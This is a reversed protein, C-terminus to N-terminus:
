IKASNKPPLGLLKVCAPFQQHWNIGGKLIMDTVIEEQEAPAMYSTTAIRYIGSYLDFTGPKFQLLGYSPTNDLDKPNVAEPNGRSECWELSGLWAKQEYSLSPTASAPTSTAAPPIAQGSTEHSLGLLILISILIALFTKTFTTM